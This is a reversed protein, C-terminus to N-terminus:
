RGEQKNPLQEGGVLRSDIKNKMTDFIDKLRTLGGKISIPTLDGFSQRVDNFSYGGKPVDIGYTTALLFSASRSIFVLDTDDVIPVSSLHALVIEQALDRFLGGSDKVGMRVVIHKSAEDYAAIEDAALNTESGVIRVPSVDVLAKILTRHDYAKAPASKELEAIQKTQKIDFVKKADYFVGKGGDRPTATIILTEPENKMVPTGRMRWEAYKNLETADPRQFYILLLNNVSYRTGFRSWVDLFVQYEVPSSVAKMAAQDVMDFAKQRNETKKAKWEDVNFEAQNTDTVDVPPVSFLDDFTYNLKNDEVDM